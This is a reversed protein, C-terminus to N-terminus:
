TSNDHALHPTSLSLADDIPADHSILNTVAAINAAAEVASALAPYSPSEATPAPSSFPNSITWSFLEATISEIIGATHSNDSESRTVVSEKLICLSVTKQLFNALDKNLQCLEHFEEFGLFVTEPVRLLRSIAATTSADDDPAQTLSSNFHLLVENIAILGSYDLRKESSQKFADFLLRCHFQLDGKGFDFLLLVAESFLLRSGSNAKAYLHFLSQLYVLIGCSSSKLLSFTKWTTTKELFILFTDFDAGGHVPRTSGSTSLAQYYQDYYFAAAKQDEVSPRAVDLAERIYKKRTLDRIGQVVKAQHERRLRDITEITVQSHFDQFAVKLLYQFRSIPKGSADTEKFNGLKSFYDQLISVLAGEDRINLLKHQNIGIIALAIQFLVPAGDLFFWDLIRLVMRLPLTSAFIALFWPITVMSLQINNIRFHHDIQPFYRRVLIEFVQQDLVAGWMSTSYYGPLAVSCIYKLLWFAQPESAFILLVSTIVNMAQCYGLEADHVAYVRLVRRLANIGDTCQYAPYEPLSRLLLISVLADFGYRNLDKEIEEMVYALNSNINAASASGFYLEHLDEWLKPSFLHLYMAGCCFEWLEGRLLNPLGVRILRDFFLTRITTVNRGYESFYREWYQLLTSEREIEQVDPSSGPHGCYGYIRGLGHLTLPCRDKGLVLQESPFQGQLEPLNRQALVTNQLLVEKLRFSFRDLQRINNGVDFFVRHSHCTTISIVYLEAASDKPKDPEYIKEMLRIACLPISFHMKASHASVLDSSFLLFHLTIYIKGRFVKGSRSETWISARSQDIIREGVPIRFTGQLFKAQRDNEMDEKFTTSRHIASGLGSDLLTTPSATSIEDLKPDSPSLTTQLLRHGARNVLSQLLEYTEERHFLNSFKITREDVTRVSITDPLLTTRSREKTMQTVNKLEILHKTEVGMIYSYFALYNESLYLWGQGGEALKCSFYNVLRESAPLAFMQRFSRATTRFRVDPAAEDTGLVKTSVLNEMRAAASQFATKFDAELQLEPVLNESLWTWKKTIEDLLDEVAVTLAKDGSRLEVPCTKLLIRFPEQRNDFMAQFTGLMNSWVSSSGRKHSDVSSTNQQLAFHDNEHITKWFPSIECPSPIIWM